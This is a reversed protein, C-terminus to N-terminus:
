AIALCLLRASKPVNFAAVRPGQQTNWVELIGRRPAYIVLYLAMRPGYQRHRHRSKGEGMERHLDEPVQIWGCQADRYGKWMRVAVGRAVDILIVRGFSDTSVALGQGPSVCISDGHRRLDPIGFRIPLSTAPEVKPKQKTTHETQQAQGAFGFWGSAANLLASKLKSAMAIAVDSILPQSSGELAYYFGVYPGTGTTLYRAAAPPTARISATYGGTMCETNLQDFSCPTVVGCSVHDTIAEQRVLGWKKYALPPPQIVDSGSAAARALQHRCARLSQFLSFGDVTVLATPYLITLEEQQEGIGPYRPVEYTRCKLKLVPDEHLLQSLLLAGNETYMRIYGSTFGIVVCTWDPAGQSSRKQSALPVCMASTVCEGEDQNLEGKYVIHYRYDIGDKQPDWKQQLFVAKEEFAIVMLDSTPSLSVCCEQLWIHQEENKSETKGDSKTENQEEQDWGWDVDEWGDTESKEEDKLDPFLFRKITLIDQFCGINSLVCSM